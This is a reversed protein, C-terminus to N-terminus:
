DRLDGEDVWAGHRWYRNSYTDLTELDGPVASLAQDAEEEEPPLHYSANPGSACAVELEIVVPRPKSTDQRRIRRVLSKMWPILHHTTLYFGVGKLAGAGLLQIVLAPDLWDVAGKTRLHGIPEVLELESDAMTARLQDVEPQLDTSVTLSIQM